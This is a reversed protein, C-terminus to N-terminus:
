KKFVSIVITKKHAPHYFFKLTIDGFTDSEMSLNLFIQNINLVKNYAM